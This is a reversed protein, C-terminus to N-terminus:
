KMEAALAHLAQSRAKKVDNPVADPLRAARTGQRRSYAFIHMDAFGVEEVFALTDDWEADTEGPFGVILDTTLSLNPIAGRARAALDRFEATFCRRAMRRLVSDCGSQLPLHLHPCVRPDTWLAFFDSPLDWPELSGLRVRPIQTRALV